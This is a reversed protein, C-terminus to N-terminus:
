DGNKSNIEDIRDEFMKLHIQMHSFYDRVLSDLTYVTKGRRWVHDLSDTNINEIIYLLFDNLNDWLTVIKSYDYGSIETTNKWEEEDYGPFELEPTIQMRIFRQHNNSASDVLHAVMEKLTWKDGSLRVDSIDSYQDMLKRFNILILRYENVPFM